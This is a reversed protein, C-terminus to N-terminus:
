EAEPPIKLIYGVGRVTRLLIPQAPNEEILERLWRIHVDLTRTDGFYDTKWVTRMLDYRGLVENPHRLFEELLAALKPTLRQESRGEVRVSRKSLYLTLPSVRVVEESREDAPLLARVRNLLKRPTFPHVLYVDAGASREELESAMRCHIIPTEGLSRRLRRCLGVATSRMGMTDVIVLDATCATVAAWAADFTPVVVLPPEGGTAPPLKKAGPPRIQVVTVSLNSKRLAAALSRTGPGVGEVLLITTEHM